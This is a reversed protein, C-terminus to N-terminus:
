HNILESGLDEIRKDLDEDPNPEPKPNPEPEPKPTPGGPDTSTLIVKPRQGLGVRQNANVKRLNINMVSETPGRPNIRGDSLLNNDKQFKKIGDFLRQDPYVTMGYDPEQYYGFDKLLNKTNITDTPDANSDGALTANLKLRRAIFM